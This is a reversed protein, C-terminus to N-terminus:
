DHSFFDNENNEDEDIEENNLEAGCFPCFEVEKNEEHLIVFEAYCEECIGYQRNKEDNRNYNM